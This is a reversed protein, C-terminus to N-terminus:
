QWGRQRAIQEKQGTKSGLTNAVMCHSSRPFSVRSDWWTAFPL